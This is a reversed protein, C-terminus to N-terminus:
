ESEKIWESYFYKYVPLLGFLWTGIKEKKITRHEFIPELQYPVYRVRIFEDNKIKFMPKIM